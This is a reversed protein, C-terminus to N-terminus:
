YYDVIFGQIILMFIVTELVFFFHKKKIFEVILFMAQPRNSLYLMGVLCLSNLTGFTMFFFIYSEETLEIKGVFVMNLVSILLIPLLLRFFLVYSNNFSAVM